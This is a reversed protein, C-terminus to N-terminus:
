FQYAGAFGSQNSAPVGAVFRSGGSTTEEDRGLKDLITVARCYVEHIDHDQLAEISEWAGLRKLVAKFNNNGEQDHSTAALMMISELAELSLHVCRADSGHRSRLLAAIASIITGDASANSDDSSPMILSLHANLDSSGSVFNAVAWTLEKVVEFKESEARELASIILAFIGSSIITNIALSSSGALINSCIWAAEKVTSTSPRTEFIAKLNLWIEPFSTLLENEFQENTMIDGIIRLALSNCIMQGVVITMLNQSALVARCITFDSGDVFRAVLALAESSVAGAAGAASITSTIIALYSALEEQPTSRLVQLMESKDLNQFRAVVASFDTAEKSRPRNQQLAAVAAAAAPPPSSESSM